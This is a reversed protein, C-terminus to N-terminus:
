SQAAAPRCQKCRKPQATPICVWGEATQKVRCVRCSLRGHQMHLVNACWCEVTQNIRCLFICSLRGHASNTDTHSTRSADTICTNALSPCVASANSLVPMGLYATMSALSAKLWIAAGRVVARCVSNCLQLSQSRGATPSKLQMDAKCSQAKVTLCPRRM